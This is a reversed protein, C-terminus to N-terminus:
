RLEEETLEVQDLTYFGVPMGRLWTMLRLAGQAYLGRSFGQHSLIVREQTGLFDITHEGLGEGGRSSAISHPVEGLQQALYLATGSPADKKNRHHIERLEVDFGLTSLVKAERLLRSLVLIGLSCNPAYLIRHLGAAGQAIWADLQAEPLGTAGVLIWLPTRMQEIVTLLAANGSVSSFDLISATSGLSAPTLPQESTSGGAYWFALASELEEQLVRGMRGQSGHVWLPTKIM